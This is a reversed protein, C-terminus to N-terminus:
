LPKIDVIMKLRDRNIINQLALRVFQEQSYGLTKAYNAAMRPSINKRDHEVDCLHQKSCGLKKAFEVQTLNECKRIALILKGLTLKSKTIKNIQRLTKHNIKNKIQM